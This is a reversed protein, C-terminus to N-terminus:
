ASFFMSCERWRFLSDRVKFGLATGWRILILKWGTKVGLRGVPLLARENMISVQTQPAPIVPNKQGTVPMAAVGVTNALPNFLGTLMRTSLV